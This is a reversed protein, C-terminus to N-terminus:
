KWSAFSCCSDILRQCFFFSSASSYLSSIPIILHQMGARRLLIDNVASVTILILSRSMITERLSGNLSPGQSRAVLCAHKWSLSIHCKKKVWRVTIANWTITKTWPYLEFPKMLGRSLFESPCTFGIEGSSSVRRNKNQETQCFSWFISLFRASLSTLWSSFQRYKYLDYQCVFIYVCFAAVHLWLNYCIM